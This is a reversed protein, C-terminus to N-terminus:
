RVSFVNYYVVLLHFWAILTLLLPLADLHSLTLCFIMAYLSLSTCSFHKNLWCTVIEVRSCIHCLGVQSYMKHALRLDGVVKIWSWITAFFSPANVVAIENLTEPFNATAMTSAQQLHSRLSWMSGLSVQELDIITTVSSVPTPTMTHPISSCLQLVFRTM